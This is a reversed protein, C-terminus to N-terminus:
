PREPPPAGHAAAYAERAACVPCREAHRRAEELLALREAPGAAGAARRRLADAAPCAPPGGAALVSEREQMALRWELERAIREPVSRLGRHIAELKRASFRTEAALREPTLELRELAERFEAATMRSPRM